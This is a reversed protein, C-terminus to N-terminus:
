EPLGASRLAESLCKLKDTDRYPQAELYSRISFAPEIAIIEHALGKARQLQGGLSCNSCLVIRLDRDAPSMRLGREAAAISKEIEGSDRYAAALVTM